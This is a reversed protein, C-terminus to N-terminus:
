SRLINVVILAALCVPLISTFTFPLLFSSVWSVVLSPVVVYFAVDFLAKTVKFAILFLLYFLVLDFALQGWLGLHGYVFLNTEEILRIPAGLVDLAANLIQTVIPPM